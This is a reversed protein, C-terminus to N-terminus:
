RSGPLPIAASREMFERVDEVTFQERLEEGLVLRAGRTLEQVFEDWTQPVRMVEQALPEAALTRRMVIPMYEDFYREGGLHEVVGRLWGLDEESPGLFDEVDTAWEPLVGMFFFQRQMEVQVQVEAEDAPPLGRRHIEADLAKQSLILDMARVAAPYKEVLALSAETYDIVGPLQEFYAPPDELQRRMVTEAHTAFFLAVEWEVEAVEIGNVMAVVGAPVRDREGFGTVEVAAVLGAALLAGGVLVAILGRNLGQSDRV